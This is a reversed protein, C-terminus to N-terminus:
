RCDLSADGRRGDESAIAYVRPERVSLGFTVARRRRRGRGGDVDAVLTYVLAGQELFRHARREGTAPDVDTLVRRLEPSAAATLAALRDASMWRPDVGRARTLTTTSARLTEGWTLRECPTLADGASALARPTERLRVIERAVRRAEAPDPLASVLMAEILEPEAANVDVKANESELRFAVPAGAFSWVAPQLKAGLAERLPDSHFTLARLGRLAAAEAQARLRAEAIQTEVVGITSRTRVILLSAGASLVLVFTLALVLAFGRDGGRRTM